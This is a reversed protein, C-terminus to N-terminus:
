DSELEPAYEKILVRKILTNYSIGTEDALAHIKAILLVPLRVSSQKTQM